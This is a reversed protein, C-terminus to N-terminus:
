ARPVSTGPGPILNEKLQNRVKEVQIFYQIAEKQRNSDMFIYEYNPAGTHSDLIKCQTLLHIQTEASQCGYRCLIDNKYFKKFNNKSDHCRSRLLGLLKREERGFRKDTLYPQVNLSTYTIGDLKSHQDKLQIFNKFAAKKILKKIIGRYENKSYSQIEKEDIIKEIFLFYKQLLQFWYNKTPSQKLKEFMKRITEEKDLTLLHHHYMIRNLSLIHRLKLTGCELHLFEVSAKSHSSLISRHLAEDVQELRKLSTEKIGSWTEATFLLSNVLIAKRLLLGVETRRRGMDVEGLIGMITAVKGWGKNRRDEITESVGGNPTVINGLYKISEADHMVTDHVQLIPCPTKCQTKNGVHIM